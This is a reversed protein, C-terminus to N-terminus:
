RVFVYEGLGKFPGETRRARVVQAEDYRFDFGALTDIIQLHEAVAPNIEVILSRLARDALTRKAGAIVKHEFGDVDIKIYQPVPLVGEEVLADLTVSYAGQAFAFRAPRLQADVAADFSHNSAGANFASVHLRSFRREDSLAACYAAVKDGLGNLVINRCLLAYNQSEPEFAYVNAGRLAAALITYMGVNAGVDLLTAGNEIAQLWEITCPEKTALTEVRWMTARNPTAFQIQRGEVTVIARPDLREYEELSLPPKPPANMPYHYGM